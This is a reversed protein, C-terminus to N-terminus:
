AACTWSRPSCTRASPPSTGSSGPRCAPAPRLNATRPRRGRLALGQRVAAAPQQHPRGASRRDHLARRQRQLLPRRHRGARRRGGPRGMVRGVGRDVAAVMSAYDPSDQRGRSTADNGGGGTEKAFPTPGDFRQAAQEFEPLTLKDAQIPTHVNYFSLMAFFPEGASRTVFAATEGSLRDTLYEGEAKAELAPNKYPAYYGGPPSGKHHGGLNVDFGQDDPWFGEGGLHWKGAFFTRYGDEKLVEALTVESLPLEDRDEVHRFRGSRSQGPIWDTIGVRVPHRGTLLSARTPSCVPCAAYAQSFRTGAAALADIHPTKYFSSGTCGLDNAGLDDVFFLVVNPPAAEGDAAPPAGFLSLSLLLATM